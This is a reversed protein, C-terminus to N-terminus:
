SALLGTESSRNDRQAGNFQPWDAGSSGGALRRNDTRETEVSFEANARTEFEESTKWPTQPVSPSRPASANRAGPPRESLLFLAASVVVAIVVAYVALRRLM